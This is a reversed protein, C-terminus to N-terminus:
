DMGWKTKPTEHYRHFAVAAAALGTYWSSPATLEDVDGGAPIIHRCLTIIIIRLRKKIDVM